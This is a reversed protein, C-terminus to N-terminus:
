AATTLEATFTAVEIWGKATAQCVQVLPMTRSLNAAAALAGQRSGTHEVVEGATVQYYSDRARAERLRTFLAM